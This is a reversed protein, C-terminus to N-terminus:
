ENTKTYLHSFHTLEEYSQESLEKILVIASMDRIRLM